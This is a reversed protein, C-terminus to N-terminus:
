SYVNNEGEQNEQTLKALLNSYEKEILRCADSIFIHIPIGYYAAITSTIELLVNYTAEAYEKDLSVRKLDIVTTIKNYQEILLQKFNDEM